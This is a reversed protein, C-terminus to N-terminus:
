RNDCLEDDQQERLDLFLLWRTTGGTLSDVYPPCLKRTAPGGM